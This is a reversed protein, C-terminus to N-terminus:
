VPFSLRRSTRYTAPPSIRRSFMTRLGRVPRPALSSPGFRRWQQICFTPMAIDFIQPFLSSYNPSSYRARLMMTRCGAPKAVADAQSRRNAPRARAASRNAAVPHPAARPRNAPHPTSRFGGARRHRRRIAITSASAPAISAFRDDRAASRAATNATHQPIACALRLCTARRFRQRRARVAPAIPSPAIAARPNNNPPVPRASASRRVGIAGNAPRLPYRARAPNRTGRDCVHPVPRALRMACRSRFSGRAVARACTGRHLLAPLASRTQVPHQEEGGGELPLGPPPHHGNWAQVLATRLMKWVM